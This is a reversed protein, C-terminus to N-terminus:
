ESNEAGAGSRTAPLQDSQPLADDSDSETLDSDTDTRGDDALTTEDSDVIEIPCDRHGPQLVQAPHQPQASGVVTADVITSNAHQSACRCALSQTVVSLCIRTISRCAQSQAQGLSLSTTGEMASRTVHQRFQTEQASGPIWISADRLRTDGLHADVATINTPVVRKEKSTGHSGTSGSSGYGQLAECGEGETSGDADAAGTECQSGEQRADNEM